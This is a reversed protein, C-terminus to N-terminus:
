RDIRAVAFWDGAGSRRALADLNRRTIRTRDRRLVVYYKVVSCTSVAGTHVARIPIEVSYIIM